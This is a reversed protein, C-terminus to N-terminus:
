WAVHQNYQLLIHTFRVKAQRKELLDIRRLLERASSRFDEMNTLPEVNEGEEQRAILGPVGLSMAECVFVFLNNILARYEISTHNMIM